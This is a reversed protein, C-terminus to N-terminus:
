KKKNQIWKNAEEFLDNVSDLSYDIFVRKKDGYLPLARYGDYTTIDEVDYRVSKTKPYMSQLCNLLQMPMFLTVDHDIWWCIVGAVVGDVQSMKTLHEWQFDTINSYPLTNGHVCKCEIALFVPKHYILFDCPNKSGYFGTTQDHLRVVVTEPKKEFTEKIVDEFQKGRNVAM